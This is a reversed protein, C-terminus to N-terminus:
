VVIDTCAGGFDAVRACRFLLFLPALKGRYEAEQLSYFRENANTIFLKRLIFRREVGSHGVRQLSGRRTAPFIDRNVKVPHQYRHSGQHRYEFTCSCLLPIFHTEVPLIVRTHSIRFVDIYGHQQHVVFVLFCGEIVCFGGQAGVTM